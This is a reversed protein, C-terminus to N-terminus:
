LDQLRGQLGQGGPAHAVDCERVNATNYYKTAEPTITAVTAPTTGYVPYNLDRRGEENTRLYYYNDSYGAM